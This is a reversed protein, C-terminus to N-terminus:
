VSRDGQTGPSTSARRRHRVVDRCIDSLVLLVVFSGTIPFWVSEGDKYRTISTWLLLSSGALGALPRVVAGATKLLSNVPM